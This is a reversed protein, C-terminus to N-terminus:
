MKSTMIKLRKYNLEFETKHKKKITLIFLFTIITQSM